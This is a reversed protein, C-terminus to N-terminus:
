ARRRSLPRRDAGRLRRRPDRDNRAAAPRRRAAPWACHPGVDWGRAVEACTEGGVLEAHRRSLEGEAADPFAGYWCTRRRGPRAGPRRPVGAARQEGGRARRAGRQRPDLAASWCARDAFGHGLRAELECRRAADRKARTLAATTLPGAHSSGAGACPGRGTGSAALGADGEDISFLIIEARGVLNEAPVFGVGRSRARAFGDLQRPQRGDHLLQEPPVVYVGTNDGVGDDGDREIIQHKGGEPLTEQYRQVQTAPRLTAPRRHMASAARAAGAKGNIYLVGDKMQIPRGAPRDPAQHLRHADDRPLKFVVIDGRKPQTVFIRGSSCRRASRSRTSSYGYSWKSVIIYDGDSTRSWRASPITFPQFLLVRLVLAILLAYVIPRSSRSAARRRLRRKRPKRRTRARRSTSPPKGGDPM